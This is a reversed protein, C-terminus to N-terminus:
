TETSNNSKESYSECRLLRFWAGAARHLAVGGGPPFQLVDKPSGMAPFPDATLNPQRGGSLSAWYFRSRETREGRTRINRGVRGEQNKLVCVSDGSRALASARPAEDHIGFTDRWSPGSAGRAARYWALLASCALPRPSTETAMTVSVLSQDPERGLLGGEWEAARGRGSLSAGTLQEWGLVCEDWSPRSAPCM